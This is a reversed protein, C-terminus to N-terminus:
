LPRAVSNLAAPYLERECSPWREELQFWPTPSNQFRFLSDRVVHCFFDAAGADSAIKM